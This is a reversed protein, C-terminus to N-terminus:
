RRRSRKSSNAPGPFHVGAIMYVPAQGSRTDFSTSNLGVTADDADIAAAASIALDDYGIQSRARAVIKKGLPGGSTCRQNEVAVRADTLASTAAAVTEHLYSRAGIKGRRVAGTRIRWRLCEWIQSGACTRATAESTGPARSTVSSPSAAVGYQSWSCNM